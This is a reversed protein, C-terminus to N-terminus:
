QYRRLRAEYEMRRIELQAETEPTQIIVQTSATLRKDDVRIQCTYLGSDSVQTPFVVNFSSGAKAHVIGRQANFVHPLRRRTPLGNVVDQKYWTPVQSGTCNHAECSLQLFGYSYDIPEGFMPSRNHISYARLQVRCQGPSNVSRTAPCKGISMPQVATKRLCNQRQLECFSSYTQGDSGCVAQQFSTACSSRCNCKLRQVGHISPHPTYICERPVHPKAIAKRLHICHPKCAVPRGSPTRLGTKVVCVKKHECDIFDCPHEPLFLEPSDSIHLNEDYQIERVTHDGRTPRERIPIRRHMEYLHALLSEEPAPASWTISVVLTALLFLAILVHRASDM